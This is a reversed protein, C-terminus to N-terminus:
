PIATVGSPDGESGRPVPVKRGEGVCGSVIRCVSGM